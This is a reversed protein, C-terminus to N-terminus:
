EKVYLAVPFGTLLASVRHGGGDLRRGAIVDHYRGDPLQLETDGLDLADVPGALQGVRCPAVAVVGGGRVCAWVKRADRGTAALPTYSAGPGLLDPRQRRLRLAQRLVWLKARGDPLTALLDAALEASPPRDALDTALAALRDHDVPRRNDPDVLSRNWVETGQYTDPVGPATLKMLTMALSTVAGLPDIAAVAEEIAAVLTPDATLAEAYRRLAAEYALNPTLWDTVDKGERAAKLLYGSLREADIPWAGVATQWALHEHAPLPWTAPTDSRREEAPGPGAEEAPDAQREEAADAPEAAPRSRAGASSALLRDVTAVWWGPRQSLVALRARVDESRKTDHTTSLRMTAPRHAAAELDLAHLEAVSTGVQAPDAGVENVATFRLDRYLVTDEFGKAIAPGTLQQFATVFAVTTADVAASTLVGALESIAGALGPARARAHAAAQAVIAVDRPDLPARGPRLYTRYVPWVVLLETLAAALEGHDREVVASALETLRAHEAGFLVELATRKAEDVLQERHVAHGTLRAQLDDLIPGAAPDLHVGLTAAAFEYGVTGAVPWEPRFREGHELIKEVVLYTDVGVARRLDELYGVPDALGDPHDIRLGDLTGDAVLPLVAAHVDAFVAPDEVRVAGLTDVDFFRRHDLEQNARRWFGLRHHQRDLLDGFRDRDTRCTAITATVDHQDLGAAALTGAAIPWAHEHYVVRWAPQRGDDVHALQLADGALAAPLPEGLEPVLLSPQGHTGPQWHVDLHRAYRGGPGHALTDWWWPNDPSVLAVHNPVIDLLLGLGAAHATAALARLGPEGGLSARIRGPDLVDYGHMSGPVAELCPSLYLHSIGLTALRPVVREADAFTFGDHLQLRYTALVPREPPGTGAPRAGYTTAAITM